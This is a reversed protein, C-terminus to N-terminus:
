LIAEHKWDVNCKSEQDTAQESTELSVAEKTVFENSEFQVVCYLKPQNRKVLLNRAGVVRIHLRGASQSPASKASATLSAKQDKSSGSSPLSTEM